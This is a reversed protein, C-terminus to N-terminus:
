PWSIISVLLIAVAMASKVKYRPLRTLLRRRTPTPHFAQMMLYAAIIGGCTIGLWM